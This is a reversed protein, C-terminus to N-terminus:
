SIAPTQKDTKRETRRGSQIKAVDRLFGYVANISPSFPLAFNGAAAAAETAAAAAAPTTALLLFM